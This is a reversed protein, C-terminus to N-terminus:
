GGARFNKMFSSFQQFIPAVQHYTQALQGVTGLVKDLDLQGNEKQFQSMVNPPMGPQQQIQNPEFAANNPWNMPQEPKQFYEYPTQNAHENMPQQEMPFSQPHGPLFSQSPNMGQQQNWSSAQSYNPEQQQFAQPFPYNMPISSRYYPRDFHPHFNTGYYM